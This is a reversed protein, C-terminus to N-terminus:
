WVGESFITELVLKMVGFCDQIQDGTGGEGIMESM